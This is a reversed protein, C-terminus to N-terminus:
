PESRTDAPPEARGEALAATDADEDAFDKREEDADSGPEMGNVGQIAREEPSLEGDSALAEERHVTIEPAGGESAELAGPMRDGGEDAVGTGGADVDEAESAAPTTSPVGEQPLLPNAFAEADVGRQATAQLFAAKAAADAKKKAEQEM